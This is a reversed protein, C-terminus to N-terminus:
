EDTNEVHDISVYAIAPDTKTVWRDGDQFLQSLELEQAVLYELLAGRSSEWGELMAIADCEAIDQVDNRLYVDRPLDTRGGQTEAPNMVNWGADRLHAAAEHFAPFNFDDHGTMPGSIYIAPRSM